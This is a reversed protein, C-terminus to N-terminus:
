DFLLPLPLISRAAGTKNSGGLSRLIFAAPLPRAEDVADDMDKLKEGDRRLILRSSEACFTFGTCFLISSFSSVGCAFVRRLDLRRELRVERFRLRATIPIVPCFSDSLEKDLAEFPRFVGSRCCPRPESSRPIPPMPMPRPISSSTSASAISKAPDDPFLGFLSPVPIFWVGGLPVTGRASTEGNAGEFPRTHLNWRRTNYVERIQLYLEFGGAEQADLELTLHVEDKNYTRLTAAMRLM